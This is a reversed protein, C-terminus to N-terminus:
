VLKPLTELAGELGEWVFSAGLMLVADWTSGARAVFQAADGHIFDCLPYLGSAEARSWAQRIFEPIIDVGTLEVKYMLVLPLSVGAKGCALDLIRQGPKLDMARGLRRVSDPLLPNLIVKDRQLDIFYPVLESKIGLREALYEQIAKEDM